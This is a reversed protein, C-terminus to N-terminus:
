AYKLYDRLTMSKELGHTSVEINCFVSANLNKNKIQLLIIITM